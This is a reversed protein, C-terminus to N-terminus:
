YSPAKWYGCFCQLGLIFFPRISILYRQIGTRFHSTIDCLELYFYQNNNNSFKKKWVTNLLLIREM